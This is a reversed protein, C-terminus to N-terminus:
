NITGKEIWSSIKMKWWVEGPDKGYSEPVPWNKARVLKKLLKSTRNKGSQDNDLSILIIPLERNMYNIVAPSLITSTSGLGMVGFRGKCEQYILIADLESEVIILPKGPTIGLPFPAYPDSGKIVRYRHHGPKPQDIRCRIRKLVGKSNYCPVLIKSPMQDRDPLWGLRYKKISSLKLGRVETLYSVSEKGNPTFLKKEAVQVLREAKKQWHEELCKKNYQQEKVEMKQQNVPQVLFSSRSLAEVAQKFDMNLYRQLYQIGDGVEGGRSWWKYLWVGDRKFFKLSDHEAVHYGNGNKVLNIGMGLLVQPLDSQKALKIQEKPIM